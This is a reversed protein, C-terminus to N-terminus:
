LRGKADKAFSIKFPFSVFPYEKARGKTAHADHYRPFLSPVFFVSFSYHLYYHHDDTNDKSFHSSSERHTFVTNMRQDKRLFLYSITFDFIPSINAYILKETQIADKIYM